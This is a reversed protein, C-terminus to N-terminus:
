DRYCRHQRIKDVGAALSELALKHNFHIDAVLPISINEKLAAVTKVAEMDPVAVRVIECGAKQLELAQKVNGEIDHAPINLMSQVAVKSDGGIFINGVKIKKSNRKLM